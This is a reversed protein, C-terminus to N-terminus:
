DGPIGTTDASGAASSPASGHRHGNPAVVVFEVEVRGAHDFILTVPVREGETLPNTLGVFMVHIDGPELMVTAGAPIDLMDIMTMSAVGADDVRSQHLTASAAAATEIGILREDQPGDNILGFYGAASLASASPQPLYPHSIKLDGSSFDHAAAATALIMAAFLAFLLKM